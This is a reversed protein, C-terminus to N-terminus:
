KNDYKGNSKVGEYEIVLPFKLPNDGDTATLLNRYNKNDDWRSIEELSFESIIFTPKDFRARKNVLDAITLYADYNMRSQVVTLFVVDAMVYDDLSWKGYLKFDPKTTASVFLRKLDLTDTLPMVTHKNALAQKMCSYAFTCKGYGNPAIFFASKAPVAGSVFVDYVKQVQSVYRSLALDTRKDERGRWFVESSWLNKRYHEPILITKYKKEMEIAKKPTMQETEVQGSVRGCHSCGEPTGLNNCYYCHGAAM